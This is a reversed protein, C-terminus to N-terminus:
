CVDWVMVAPARVQEPDASFPNTPYDDLMTRVAVTDFAM